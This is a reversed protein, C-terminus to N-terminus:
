CGKVTAYYEYMENIQLGIENKNEIRKGATSPLLVPLIRAVAESEKLRKTIAFEFFKDPQVM